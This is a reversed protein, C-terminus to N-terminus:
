LCMTILQVQLLIAAMLPRNSQFLMIMVVTVLLKLGHKIGRAIQEVGDQQELRICGNEYAQRISKTLMTGSDIKSISESLDKNFQDSDKCAEAIVLGPNTCFQGVGMTVSAALGKALAENKEKKAIKYQSLLEVAIKGKEIKKDIGTINHRSNGYLLDNIGPVFSGPERNALSM